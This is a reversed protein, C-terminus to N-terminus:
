RSGVDRVHEQATRVKSSAIRLAVMVEDRAREGERREIAREAAWGGAIATLLVGAAIARWGRRPLPRVVPARRGDAAVRELVRAGFGSPPSTRRFAHELERGLEDEPDHEFVM